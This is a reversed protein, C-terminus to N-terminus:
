RQAQGHRARITGQAWSDCFSQWLKRHLVPAVENRYGCSRPRLGRCYRLLPVPDSIVLRQPAALRAGVVTAGDRLVGIRVLRTMEEFLLSDGDVPRGYCVAERALVFATGVNPHGAFPVESGPTFIRIHATHDASKPPFIFTTESLNFEAAISQMQQYSLGEANLVVALPNGGFQRDLTDSIEHEHAM